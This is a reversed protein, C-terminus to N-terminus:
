EYKGGKTEFMAKTNDEVNIIMVYDFINKLKIEWWEKEHVCRNTKTGDFFTTPHDICNLYIFCNDSYDKLEELVKLADEEELNHLVDSCIVFDFKSNPKEELGEIAPDYRYVSVNLDDILKQYLESKGCGFDLINKYNNRKIIESIQDYFKISNKGYHEKRNYLEKFREIEKENM